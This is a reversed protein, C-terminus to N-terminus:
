RRTSEPRAPGRYRWTVRAARRPPSRARLLRARRTSWRAQQSARPPSPASVGRRGRVASRKAERPNVAALGRSWAPETSRELLRPARYRTSPDRARARPHALGALVHHVPETRNESCQILGLARGIRRDRHAAAAVDDRNPARRARANAADHVDLRRRAARDEDLRRLDTLQAVLQARRFRGLLPFHQPHQALERIQQPRLRGHDRRRPLHTDREVVKTRARPVGDCYISEYWFDASMELDFPPSM